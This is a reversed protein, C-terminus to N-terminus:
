ASVAPSRKMADRVSKRSLCFVAAIHFVLLIGSYGLNFLFSISRLVQVALGPTALWFVNRGIGYLGLLAAFISYYVILQRAWERGRLLGAGGVIHIVVGALGLFQFVFFTVNFPSFTPSHRIAQFLGFWSVMYQLVSLVGFVLCLVGFTRVVPPLAGSESSRNLTPPAQFIDAFEALSHLSAWHPDDACRVQTSGGARGERIWQRLQEPSIPGYEKGDSGLITFM